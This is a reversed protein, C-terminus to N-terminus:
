GELERRFFTIAKMWAGAAAAPDHVMKSGATVRLRGAAVPAQM